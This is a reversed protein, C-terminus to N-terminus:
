EEVAPLAPEFRQSRRDDTAMAGLDKEHIKLHTPEPMKAIIMLAPSFFTDM